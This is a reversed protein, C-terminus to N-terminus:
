QVAGKPVESDALGFSGLTGPAMLMAGRGKSLHRLHRRLHSPFAYVVTRAHSADLGDRLMFFPVVRCQVAGCTDSRTM